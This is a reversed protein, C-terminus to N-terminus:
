LIPKMYPIPYSTFVKYPWRYPKRYRNRYYFQLPDTGTKVYRYPITIYNQFFDKNNNLSIITFLLMFCFIVKRNM